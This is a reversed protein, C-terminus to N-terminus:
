YNELHHVIHNLTKERLCSLSLEQSSIPYELSNAKLAPHQFYIFEKTRPRQTLNLYLALDDNNCVINEKYAIQDMLIFEKVQKEALQKIYSDFQKEVKYVPYDANNQLEDLLYQQHRLVQSEPITLSQKRLLLALLDEVITRHLSIDNRYSFVEILKQHTKKKTKIKFHEQLRSLSFFASPLVEIIKIGFCYKTDMYESFYEQFCLNNTIFEEGIKKGIFIEQFPLYAEGQGIKLWFNERLQIIFPKQDDTALWIDFCVWDNLDVSNLCYKSENEAETKAFLEAQKDLDKYFKRQPFKFVMYKWEDIEANNPCTVEFTFKIDQNPLLNIKTLRPSGSILIKNKHISKYLNSMVHLKFLLEKAHALFSERFRDKIYSIGEKSDKLGKATIFKTQHNAIYEILQNVTDSSTTVSLYQISNLRDETSFKSIVNDQIM